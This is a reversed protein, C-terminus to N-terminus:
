STVLISWVNSVFDVPALTVFQFGLEVGVLPALQAATPDLTMLAKGHDDLHGPFSVFSGTYPVVPPVTLLYFRKAPGHLELEIPSPASASIASTHSWLPPVVDLTPLPFLTVPRIGDDAVVRFVDTGTTKGATLVCSYNGNGLDIV